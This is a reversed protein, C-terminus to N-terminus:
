KYKGWTIIITYIHKTGPSFEIHYYGMKLGFSSAYEFIDLNLLMDQIKPITFPKRHIIQNLKRFNSLFRVTGNNKPQIVTPAGWRSNNM